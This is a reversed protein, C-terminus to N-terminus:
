PKAALELSATWIWAYPWIWNSCSLPFDLLEHARVHPEIFM